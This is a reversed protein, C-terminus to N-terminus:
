FCSCKQILIGDVLNMTIGHNIKKSYEMVSKVNVKVHIKSFINM